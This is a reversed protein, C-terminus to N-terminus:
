SKVKRMRGLAGCFLCSVEAIADREKACGDLPETQTAFCGVCRLEVHVVDGDFGLAAGTTRHAPSNRSM